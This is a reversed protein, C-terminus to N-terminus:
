RHVSSSADLKGLANRCNCRGRRTQLSGSMRNNPRSSTHAGRERLLTEESLITGNDAIATELRHQFDMKAPNRLSCFSFSTEKSDTSCLARGTSKYETRYRIRQGPTLVRAAYEVVMLQTRMTSAFKTSGVRAATCPIIAKESIFQQEFTTLFRPMGAQFGRFEFTWSSSGQKPLVGDYAKFESPTQGIM